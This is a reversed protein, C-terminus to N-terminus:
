PKVVEIKGKLAQFDRWFDPYSKATVAANQLLVPQTCFPAACAALMAIRHDGCSTVTGGRLRFVGTVHLGDAEEFAKGGLANVTQAVAAIRDSEKERLRAAGVFHTTVNERLAALLALPPLLDPCASVDCKEPLNKCFETIMKDGQGSNKQMNGVDISCGLASLVVFWAAASWDPETYFAAPHYTQGGPIRWGTETAESHIEYRALVARTMEIYPRSAPPAPLRIESDTRCLPLAMLLGSILQSTRSGDTCVVGGTLAGTIRIGRATHVCPLGEPLPRQLLRETGTFLARKGLAMFVPLLFRLTSGSAGCDVVPEAQASQLVSLAEETRAVDEPLAAPLCPTGGSLTCAILERHLLSKSPPPTIAGSLPVPYIKIDM